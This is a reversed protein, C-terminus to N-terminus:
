NSLLWNSLSDMALSEAKARYIKDFKSLDVMDSNGRGIAAFHTFPQAASVSLPLSCKPLAVGIQTQCGEIYGISFGRL